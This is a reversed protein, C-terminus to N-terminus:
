TRVRGKKEVGVVPERFWPGQFYAQAAQTLPHKAHRWRRKDITDHYTRLVEALEATSKERLDEFDAGFVAPSRIGLREALIKQYATGCLIALILLLKEDFADKVWDQIESWPLLSVVHTLHILSRLDAPLLRIRSPDPKFGIFDVSLQRSLDVVSREYSLGTGRCLSSWGAEVHIEKDRVVSFRLWPSTLLDPQRARVKQIKQAIPTMTCCCYKLGENLPHLRDLVVETLFEPNIRSALNLLLEVWYADDEGHPFGLPRVKGPELAWIPADSLSEAVVHSWTTTKANELSFLFRAAWWDLSRLPLKRAVDEEGRSQALIELVTLLSSEVDSKAGVGPRSIEALPTSVQHLRRYLDTLGRPFRPVLMSFDEAHCPWKRQTILKEFLQRLTFKEDHTKLPRFSSQEESGWVDQVAWLDLSFRHSHPILKALLRESTAGSLGVSEKDLRTTLHDPDAVIIFLLREDSFDHLFTTLMQSCLGKPVLDVDELPVLICEYDEPMVEPLEVNFWHAMKKNIGRRAEIEQLAMNEYESSTVALSLRLERFEKDRLLFDELIRRKSSRPMRSPATRPDPDPDVYNKLDELLYSALSVSFPVDATLTACDLPPWCLHIGSCQEGVLEACIYELATTKGSGRSGFLGFTGFDEEYKPKDEGLPKETEASDCVSRKSNRPIKPLNEVYSRIQRVARLVTERQRPKMQETTLRRPPRNM